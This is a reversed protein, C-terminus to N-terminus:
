NRRDHKEGLMKIWEKRVALNHEARDLTSPGKVGLTLLYGCGVGILAYPLYEIILNLTM